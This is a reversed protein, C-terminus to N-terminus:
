LPISTKIAKRQAAGEVCRDREATGPRGEHAGRRHGHLRPGEPGPHSRDGTLRLVPFDPRSDQINKRTDFGIQLNRTFSLILYYNVASAAEPGYPRRGPPLNYFQM